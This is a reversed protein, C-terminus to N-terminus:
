VPQYMIIVDTDKFASIDRVGTGYVSISTINPCATLSDIKTVGTNYDMKISQLYELGALPKLTSIQNKSGDITTLQSNEGFTPIKKVKNNSFNLSYLNNLSALASIDTISNNSIDLDVLNQNNALASVNTLKNFAASLVGLNKLDGLGSLSTLSNNNITLYALNKCGSLPATSTISNYSLDLEQLKTLKSLSGLSVVANHSLDLYTLETMGELATLDRITNNNLDLWELKSLPALPSIDSLGCNTLTLKTLNPIRSIAELDGTSLETYTIVLDELSVLDALAFLNPFDGHQIALSKLNPFLSLDALTVADAPIVLSEIEWLDNTFIQLSDSVGLQERIMREIAPDEFIVKRIVNTVKYDLKEITSVLGNPSVTITHITTIGDGIQIPGNVLHRKQSPYTGQTTAYVKGQSSTLNIPINEDYEGPLPYANPALPRMADIEAKIKPDDINDLLNVADLLKDQEVFTQCYAVYLDVSPGNIIANHLTYEAKTYNGYERHQRAIEIAIADDKGGFDYALDYFFTAMTYNERKDLHRAYSLLIDRTIDRDYSLFYWGISAIIVIVLLIPIIIKAARSM